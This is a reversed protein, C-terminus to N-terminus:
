YKKGQPSIYIVERELLIDKQARVTRTINKELALIDEFSGGGKNLIFNAHVESVELRNHNTGKFGASEILKGASIKKDDIVPNKFFCGATHVNWPPHKEQRYRLKTKVKERIKESDEDMYKLFVDLIVESGYKFISNRYEFQFYNRDVTKIEGSHPTFIEAKELVADISQGFSGANVAAAGGITGPIGALFDMGGVRNKIARNLFDRNLVGSNVKVLHEREHKVIGATRNIIVPVATFADHLIVNSGGGLLIFPYGNAHLFCLLDKLQSLHFVVIILKVKGGIGMTLYPKIEHDPHYEIKGTELYQELKEM